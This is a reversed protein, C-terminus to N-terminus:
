SYSEYSKVERIDSNTLKNIKNKTEFRKDNIQYVDRALRIFLPGFDKNKEQLRINDEISWLGRNTQYLVDRLVSLEEALLGNFQKYLKELKEKEHRVNELKKEDKIKELKVDLITLKDVLEGISVPINIKM